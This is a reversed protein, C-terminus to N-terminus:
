EGAALVAKPHPQGPKAVIPGGTVMAVLTKPVLLALAVHVVMFGCIAAMGLFHVIRGGQFGGFLDILWPFQIPKWIAIGSVVQVIGALIVGVYLLKQVANYMTIDGHGLRFALAEKAEHLVEGPRIPLLKRRFRGTSFGYALYFLGNVALLWMGAFHWQLGGSASNGRMRDSIEPDGGLSAWAPFSIWGVLPDDGYIRWGSGIMIIMALANIWHM